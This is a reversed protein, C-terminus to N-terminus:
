LNIGEKELAQRLGNRLRFLRQTLRNAPVGRQRAVSEVTEGYFYRRVFLTRDDKSLTGLWRELCATIERREATEEASPSPPLCDELEASLVDLGTERERARGRRWRDISLNRVIKAAFAGLSGPRAPPISDWLRLLADSVCEEADEESGLLRKALARLRRGYKEQALPIASQDRSWFLEIIASDEM